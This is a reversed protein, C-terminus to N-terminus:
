SAWAAAGAANYHLSMFASFEGRLIVARFCKNVTAFIGCTLPLIGRRAAIPVLGLPWPFQGNTSSGEGRDPLPLFAHEVDDVPFIAVGAGLDRGGVLVRVEGIELLVPVDQHQAPREDGVVTHPADTAAQDEVHRAARLRLRERAVLREALSAQEL